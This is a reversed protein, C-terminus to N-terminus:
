SSESAVARPPLPLDPDLFYKDATQPQLLDTLPDPTCRIMKRRTGLSTNATKSDRLGETDMLFCSSNEGRELYETDKIGETGHGWRSEKILAAMAVSLQRM